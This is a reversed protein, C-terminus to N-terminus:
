RAPRPPLTPEPTSDVSTRPPASKESPRPPAAARECSPADRLACGKAFWPRAREFTPEFIGRNYCGLPQGEECARAFWDLRRREDAASLSERRSLMSGLSLCSSAERLECGREYFSVALRESKPLGRGYEYHLGAYGCAKPSGLRCASAVMAWASVPDAEDADPQLRAWAEAYCSEADLFGCSNPATADLTLRWQPEVEDAGPVDSAGGHPGIVDSEALGPGDVDSEAADPAAAHALLTTATVEAPPSTAPPPELHSERGERCGLSAILLLSAAASKM